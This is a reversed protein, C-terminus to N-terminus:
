SYAHRTEFKQMMYCELLLRYISSVLSLSFSIMLHVKFTVSMSVKRFSKQFKEPESRLILSGLVFGTGERVKSVFIWIVCDYVVIM